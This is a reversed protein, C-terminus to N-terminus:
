FFSDQLYMSGSLFNIQNFLYYALYFTTVQNQSFGWFNFFMVIECKVVRMWLKERSISVPQAVLITLGM